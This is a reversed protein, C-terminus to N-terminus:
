DRGHCQRLGALFGLDAVLQEGNMYLSKLM